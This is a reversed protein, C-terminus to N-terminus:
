RFEFVDFLTLCILQDSHLSLPWLSPPPLLLLASPPTPPRTTTMTTMRMPTTPKVTRMTLRVPIRMPTTPKVTRMTLRASEMKTLITETKKKQRMPAPKSMLPANPKMQSTMTKSTPFRMPTTTRTSPSTPLGTEQRSLETTVLTPIPMLLCEQSSFTLNTRQSTFSSRSSPGNSVRMAIKM